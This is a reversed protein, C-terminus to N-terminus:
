KESEWGTHYLKYATVWQHSVGLIKGIATNSQGNYARLVENVNWGNMYAGMNSTRHGNRIGEELSRIREMNVMNALQLTRIDKEHQLYGQAALLLAKERKKGM